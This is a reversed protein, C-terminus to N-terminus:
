TQLARDDHQVRAGARLGAADWTRRGTAIAPPPAIRRRWGGDLLPSVGGRLQRGAVMLGIPVIAGVLLIAVTSRETPAVVFSTMALWALSVVGFVALLLVAAALMAFRRFFRVRTVYPRGM